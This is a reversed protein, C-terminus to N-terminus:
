LKMSRNYFEGGKDVCIKNPKCNSKQLFNKLTNTITIGKEDKLLLVWANFSSVMILIIKKILTVKLQKDALDAGWINDM